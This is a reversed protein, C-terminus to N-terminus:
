CLSVIGSEYLSIVLESLNLQGSMYQFLQKCPEDTFHSSFEECCYLPDLFSISGNKQALIDRATSKITIGNCLYHISQVIKLEM